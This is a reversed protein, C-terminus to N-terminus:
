RNFLRLSARGGTIQLHTLKAYDFDLDLWRDQPLGLLHGAISRLPGSHTIVVSEAAEEQCLEHLFDLVRASMDLASEGGPPRHSLPHKAWRELAPAGIEEFPKLEWEGFDTERLRPDAQAAGLRQALLWARQLPSSFIKADKPLLPRLHRLVPTLPAALALDSVGYCVHAAIAAAPPRILYLNM